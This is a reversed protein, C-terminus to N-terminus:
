RERERLAGLRSLRVIESWSVPMGRNEAAEAASVLNARLSEIGDLDNERFPEWNESRQIYEGSALPDQLVAGWRLTGDPNVKFGTSFPEPLNGHYGRFWGSFCGLELSDTLVFYVWDPTLGAERAAFREGLMVPIWFGAAKNKKCSCLGELVENFSKVM